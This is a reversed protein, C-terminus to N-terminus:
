QSKGHRHNCKPTCIESGKYENGGNTSYFETNVLHLLTIAVKQRSGWKATDIPKV